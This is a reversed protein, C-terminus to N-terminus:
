FAAEYEENFLKTDTNAFELDLLGSGFCCDYYSSSFSIETPSEFIAQVEQSTYAIHPVEGSAFPLVTKRSMHIDIGCEQRSDHTHGM